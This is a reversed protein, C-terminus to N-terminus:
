MYQAGSDILYVENITLTRNTEPLPRYPFSVAHNFVHVFMNIKTPFPLRALCTVCRYHIIAANPGVSSITPFSLGVFEKQQSFFCM